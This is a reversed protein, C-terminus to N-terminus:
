FVGDCRWGRGGMVGVLLGGWPSGGGCGGIMLPIFKLINQTQQQAPDTSAPSVIKQSVFQSIVLLVPLVLYSIADHWGIPPAGDVFPFLWSLGTGQSTPRNPKTLPHTPTSTSTKHQTPNTPQPTHHPLTDTSGVQPASLCVWLIM